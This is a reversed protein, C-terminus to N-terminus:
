GKTRIGARQLLDNLPPLIERRVFDTDIKQNSTVNITIGALAAAAGTASPTFSANAGPNLVRSAVSGPLFVEGGTQFRRPRTPADLMNALAERPVAMSNVAQMFGAGLQAVRSRQVVWEGPTLM